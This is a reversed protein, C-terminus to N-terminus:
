PASAGERLRSPLVALLSAGVFARRDARRVLYAEADPRNVWLRVEIRGGPRREATAIAYPALAELPPLRLENAPDGRTALIEEMAVGDGFERLIRLEDV